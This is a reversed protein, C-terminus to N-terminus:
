LRQVPYVTTIYTGKAGSKKWCSECEGYYKGDLKYVVSPRKNSNAEIQAVNFALEYEEVEKGKKCSPCM